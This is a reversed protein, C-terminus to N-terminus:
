GETFNDLGGDENIEEDADPNVSTNSPKFFETDFVAREYTRNTEDPKSPKPVPKPNAFYELLDFQAQMIQKGLHKLTHVKAIRFKTKKVLLFQPHIVEVVPPPTKGPKPQIKELMSAYTTFHTENWLHWTLKPKCPEYGKNTAPAGDAGAAKKVDWENGFDGDVEVNTDLFYFEDIALQDWSLPSDFWSPVGM